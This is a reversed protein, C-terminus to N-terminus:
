PLFDGRIQAAVDPGNLAPFPEFAERNPTMVVRRRGKFQLVCCIWAKTKWRRHTLTREPTHFAGGRNGMMTGRAPTAIIEGSPTVRNQLPMAPDAM